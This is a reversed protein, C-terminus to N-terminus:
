ILLLAGNNWDPHEQTVQRGTSASFVVAGNEASSLENVVADIDGLARTKGAGMVNGSHCSDVFFLAKGAINQVTQQIEFFVVGTARTREINFTHPVFYYDNNPPANVGHGGLFVMAVDKATTQSQVWELGDVINDRTAEADCLVKTEVDRYLGGKQAVCAAAFDKADKAAYGLNFDPTAYKSVGVALVYLKPKVAFEATPAAGSSM